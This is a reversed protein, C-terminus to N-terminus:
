CHQGAPNFNWARILWPRHEVPQKGIHSKYQAMRNNIRRVAKITVHHRSAM